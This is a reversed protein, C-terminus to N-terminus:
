VETRMGVPLYYNESWMVSVETQSGDCFVVVLWFEYNYLETKIHLDQMDPEPFVPSPASLNYFAPSWPNQQSKTGWLPTM